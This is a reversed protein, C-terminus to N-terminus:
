NLGVNEAQEARVAVLLRPHVVNPAARRPRM